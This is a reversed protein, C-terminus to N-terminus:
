HSLLGRVCVLERDDDKHDASISLLCVHLGLELQKLTLTGDSVSLSSFIKFLAAASSASQGILFVFLFAFCM